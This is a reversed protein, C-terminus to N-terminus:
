GPRVLSNDPEAHRQCHRGSWTARDGIGASAVSRRRGARDQRARRQGPIIPRAPATASTSWNRKWMRATVTTPSASRIPRGIESSFINRACRGCGRRRSQGDRSLLADPWITKMGDIPFQESHADATRVRARTASHIASGSRIRANGPSSAPDDPLAPERLSCCWKIRRAAGDVSSDSLFPQKLWFCLAHHVYIFSCILRLSRM